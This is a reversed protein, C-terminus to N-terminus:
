PSAAKATLQKPDKLIIQPKGQYMDIKGTVCLEKGAATKEPAGFKARDSAFILATFTADPYPKDFDLFTTGGRVQAAFKAAAVVGCVTVTEGAHKAAQGPALPEAQGAPVSGALVVGMVLLRRVRM